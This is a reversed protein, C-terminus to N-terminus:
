FPKEMNKVAPKKSIVRYSELKSELHRHMPDNRLVLRMFLGIPMIMMYFVLGLVVRTNFWGLALGFIMWGKHVPRLATPLILALLLFVAGVFWPWKTLAIDLGWIFPILLGFFGIILTGFLLGFKRLEAVSPMTKSHYNISM